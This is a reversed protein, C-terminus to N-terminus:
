HDYPAGAQAQEARRGGTSSDARQSRGRHTQPLRGDLRVILIPQMIHLTPISYVHINSDEQASNESTSPHIHCIM